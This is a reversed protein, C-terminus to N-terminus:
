DKCTYADRFREWYWVKQGLEYTTSIGCSFKKLQQTFFRAKLRNNKALRAIKRTTFANNANVYLHDGIIYRLQKEARHGCQKITIEFGQIKYKVPKYGKIKKRLGCRSCTKAERLTPELIWCYDGNSAKSEFTYFGM